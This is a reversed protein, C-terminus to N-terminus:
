RCYAVARIREIKRLAPSSGSATAGRAQLQDGLAGLPREGQAQEPEARRTALHPGLGGFRM